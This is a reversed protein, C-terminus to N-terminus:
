LLWVRLKAQPPSGVALPPPKTDWVALKVLKTSFSEQKFDLSYLLVSIPSSVGQQVLGM